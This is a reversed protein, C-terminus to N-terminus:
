VMWPKPTPKNKPKTMKKIKAPPCQNMTKVSAVDKRRPKIRMQSSGELTVILYFM